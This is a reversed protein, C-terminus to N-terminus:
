KRLRARARDDEIDLMQEMYKSDGTREYNEKAVTYPDKSTSSTPTVKEAPPVAKTVTIPKPASDDHGVGKKLIRRVEHRVIAEAEALERALRPDSAAAVVVEQYTGFNGSIETAEALEKALEPNKGLAYLAEAGGRMRPLVGVMALSAPAKSSFAVAEFDVHAAKGAEVEQQWRTAAERQASETRGQELRQEAVRERYEDRRADYDEIAADYDDVNDFDAMRPRKPPELATNSKKPEAKPAAAPAAPQRGALQERLIKAEARAETRERKVKAFAHKQKKVQEPTGFYEPEHDQDEEGSGADPVIEPAPTESVPEKAATPAEPEIGELQWKTKQEPTWSKQAEAFSKPESESPAVNAPTSVDNIVTRMLEKFLLFLWARRTVRM